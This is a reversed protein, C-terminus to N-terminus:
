GIAGLLGLREALAAERLAIRSIKGNGTLPFAEVAFLRLGGHPGVVENIQAAMLRPDSGALPLVALGIMDPGDETPIAFACARAIGPIGQVTNEILDPAINGGGTNIMDASRGVLVLAGDAPRIRGLDGTEFWGESDYPGEAGLYELCRQELPVRIRVPGVPGPTLPRGDPDAVVIEVGVTPRGILGSEYHDVLPQGVAAMSVESAGYLVTIPCGFAAGARQLLAHGVSGGVVTVRDLPRLLPVTVADALDALKTPTAVIERLGHSQGLAFSALATDRLLIVGQGAFWSRLYFRLAAGTDPAMALLTPGTPAGLAALRSLTRALTAGPRMRFFKPRGTTGSSAGILDGEPGNCVLPPVEFWDQAFTIKPLHQPVVQDHLAVVADVAIEPGPLTSRAIVEAGLRMGALWLCIKVAPNDVLVALTTGPGVRHEALQASFALIARQLRGFSISQGDATMLAMGYPDGLAIKDLRAGISDQNM